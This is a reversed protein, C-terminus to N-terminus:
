LDQFQHFVCARSLRARFLEDGTECSDVGRRHHVARQRQRDERRQHPPQNKTKGRLPVDPKVACQGEKDDAAGARQHDANGQAEKRPDAPGAVLSDQDLPRIVQLGQRLDSRHHEVLGPCQRLPHKLDAADMVARHLVLFQQFVRRQHLARGRVRDTLAQLPCVPLLDVAAADGLNFLDATLPDDSDDVAMTDGRSVVLQHAAQLQVVLFAAADPGDDVHRHVASIRPVDHDRIKFLRIHLLRDLRKAVRSDAPKDHQGAVPFLNGGM